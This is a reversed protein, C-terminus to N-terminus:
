SSGVGIWACAMGETWIIRSMIPIAWVPVPLVALKTKGIISM